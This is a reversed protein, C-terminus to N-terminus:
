DFVFPELYTELDKKEADTLVPCDDPGKAGEAVLAAFVLCTDQGCERCNTRPLLKLIEFVKPKSIGQFRPEISERNEWTENIERKIWEVIKDAEEEDQLANVAIQVARKIM